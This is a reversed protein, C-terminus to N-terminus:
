KPNPATLLRRSSALPPMFDHGLFLPVVMAGKGAHLLTLPPLPKISSFMAGFSANIATMTARPAIILLNRGRYRLGNDIIGYERPDNCLCIVPVVGGLAYDLKGADNWRIAAIAATNGDFLHRQRLEARLSTWDVAALDPDKGLAFHVGIEPPWNWRVESTVMLLGSVVVVANGILWLRASRNRHKLRDAIAQGLLPFLVLYGPAAWHFLMRQRAWLAILSFAAIPVVGTCCLLWAHPNAPGHRLAKLFALMLPLWIWPLLFLADGALTVFPAFPHLRFGEARSGQFIFSMWDHQANWILVPSFLAAAILAAMYPELRLLWRRDRGQTALYLGIGAISLVATYKSLLALGACVGVGIWWRGDDSPLAHVICLVLGLIACDLPGDPLVWSATTVGFVPALNLVVAAWLGARASFLTEGLRYMLWTSFCFLVIFPSRVAIEAESGFLHVASWTLWWSLPPHDFYSLQLHRGAAVMYSEDIGLGIMAAFALRLLVGLAILAIVANRPVGLWQAAQSRRKTQV